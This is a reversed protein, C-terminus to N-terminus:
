AATRARDDAPEFSPSRLSLALSLSMRRSWPIAVHRVPETRRVVVGGVEEPEGGRQDRHRRLAVVFGLEGFITSSRSRDRAGDSAISVTPALTIARVCSPRSRRTTSPPWRSVTGALPLAPGSADVAVHQVTETRGVHLAPERHQEAEGLLQVGIGLTGAVVHREREVLALLDGVPEVAEAADELLLGLQEVAVERHQELGGVRPHLGTALAHDHELRVEVALARVGRPRPHAAVRDVTGGLHEARRAAWSDSM